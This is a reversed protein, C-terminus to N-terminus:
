LNLQFQWKHWEGDNQMGVDSAAIGAKGPDAGFARKQSQVLKISEVPLLLARASTILDSVQGRKLSSLFGKPLGTLKHALHVQSEKAEKGRWGQDRRSFCDNVGLRRLWGDAVAIAEKWSPGSGIFKLERDEVARV